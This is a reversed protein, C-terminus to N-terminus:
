GGAVPPILALRDDMRVRTEVGCFTENRALRSHEILPALEPHAEALAALLEGASAEARELAVTTEPVGARERAPGFLLITYPM